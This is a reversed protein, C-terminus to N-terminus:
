FHIKLFRSGLVDRRTDNLSMMSRRPPAQSDFSAGGTMVQCGPYRLNYNANGNSKPTGLGPPHRLAM